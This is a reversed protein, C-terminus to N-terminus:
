RFAVKRMTLSWTDSGSEGLDGLEVFLTVPSVADFLRKERSSSNTFEDILQLLIDILCKDQDSPIQDLRLRGELVEPIHTSAIIYAWHMTSNGGRIRNALWPQFGRLPEGSLALNFGEIFAVATSYRGDPLYM